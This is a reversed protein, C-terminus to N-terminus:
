EYQKKKGSSPLPPPKLVMDGDVLKITLVACVAGV